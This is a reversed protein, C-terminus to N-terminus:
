CTVTLEIDAIIRVVLTRLWDKILQGKRFHHLGSTLRGSIYVEHIYKSVCTCYMVIYLTCM